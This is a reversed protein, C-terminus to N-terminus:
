VDYMNLVYNTTLEALTECSIHQTQNCRGHMYIDYLVAYLQRCGINTVHSTNSYGHREFMEQLTSIAITNVLCLFLSSYCQLM